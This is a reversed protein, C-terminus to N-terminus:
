KRIVDRVARMAPTEISRVVRGERVELSQAPASKGAFESLRSSLQRLNAAVKAKEPFSAQKAYSTSVDLAAQLFSSYASAFARTRMGSAHELLRQYSTNFAEKQSPDKSLMKLRSKLGDLDPKSLIGLKADLEAVAGGAKIADNYSKAASEIAQGERSNLIKFVATQLREYNLKGIRTVGGKSNVHEYVIDMAELLSRFSADISAARELSVMLDTVGQVGKNAVLEGFATGTRHGEQLIMTVVKRPSVGLEKSIRDAELIMQTSEEIAIPGGEKVVFLNKHYSLDSTSAEKFFSTTLTVVQSIGNVKADWSQTPLQVSGTLKMNMFENGYKGPGTGHNLAAQSTSVGWTTIRVNHERLLMDQFEPDQVATIVRGIGSNTNGAVLAITGGGAKESLEIALKIVEERTLRAIGEKNEYEADSTGLHNMLILGGRSLKSSKHDRIIEKALEESSAFVNGNPNVNEIYYQKIQEFTPATEASQAHALEAHFLVPSVSLLSFGLGAIVFAKRKVFEEV